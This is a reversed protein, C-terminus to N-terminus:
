KMFLIFLDCLISDIKRINMHVDTHQLDHKNNAATPQPEECGGYHIYMLTNTTPKGEM